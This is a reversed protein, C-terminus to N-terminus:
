GQHNGDYFDLQALNGEIQRRAAEDLTQLPPLMTPGCLGRSCMAGKLGALSQGLTRGKQYAAAVADIRAQAQEAGEWEGACACAYIEHCLSPVLNGSSPVAGAAGWRLATASYAAVGTFFAFDARSNAFEAAAQQRAADRESDKLGVINPIVSLKEVIELPISIGTTAPMNYLILPGAIRGSLTVFYDLLEGDNLAYYFPSHAVVADIGASFYEEAAQVSDALANGSIGAYTRARGNVHDVLVAALQSRMAVPASMSEGTTGLVFIGDVGGEIMYDVIRRVGSEDLEGAATIPTVMPVVIGAYETSPRGASAHKM